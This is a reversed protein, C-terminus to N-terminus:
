GSRRSSFFRLTDTPSLILVVIMHMPNIAINTPIDISSELPAILLGPTNMAIAPM